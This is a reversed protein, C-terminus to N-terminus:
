YLCSKLFNCSYRKSGPPSAALIFFISSAEPSRLPFAAGLRTRGELWPYYITGHLKEFSKWPRRPDVRGQAHTSPPSSILIRVLFLLISKTLLRTLLLKRWLSAQRALDTLM